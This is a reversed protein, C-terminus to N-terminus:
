MKLRYDDIYAMGNDDYSIHNLVTIMGGDELLMNEAYFSTEDSLNFKATHEIFGEKFRPSESLVARYEKSQDFLHIELIEHGALISAIDDLSQYGEFLIKKRLYVLMMGSTPAENTHNLKEWTMM